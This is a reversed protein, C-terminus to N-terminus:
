GGRFCIILDGIHSTGKLVLYFSTHKGEFVSPYWSSDSDAPRVTERLKCHKTWVSSPGIVNEWLKGGELAFRAYLFESKVVEESWKKMFAWTPQLHFNSLQTWSKAVGHIYMYLGHFERPWYVPTTAKGKELPHEWILSRVRTERMAPSNKVLQECIV